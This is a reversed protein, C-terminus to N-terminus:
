LSKNQEREMREWEAREEASENELNVELPTVPISKNSKLWDIAGQKIAERQAYVQLAIEKKKAKTEKTTTEIPKVEAVVPAVEVAVEKNFLLRVVKQVKGLSCSSLLATRRLSNGENLYKLIKKTSSKASFEELTEQKRNGGNNKYVGKLKAKDIGEKQREKLREREHQALTSLIGIILTAIPNAKGELMTSLGERRSVLNVNHLTFFEITKLIDLNNRGIRSIDHILIEEVKGEKVLQIIKAGETREAFAISGSVVEKFVKYESSLNFEQVEKSQTGTSVRIYNIKM